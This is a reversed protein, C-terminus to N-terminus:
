HRGPFSGRNVIGRLKEGIARQFNGALLYYYLRRIILGARLLSEGSFIIDRFSAQERDNENSYKQSVTGEHLRYQALVENVFCGRASRFFNDFLKYEFQGRLNLDLPGYLAWLRRSFLVTGQFINGGDVQYTRLTQPCSYLKRIPYGHEDILQCHGYSFAAHSKILSQVIISLTDPFFLDDYNLWGLWEGTAVTLGKNIADVQGLDPESIVRSLKNSYSRIIAVTNDTSAGDVIIYEVNKYTQGLVSEITSALYREGNLVPTVISVKPLMQM